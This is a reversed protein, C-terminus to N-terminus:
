LDVDTRGKNSEYEKTGRNDIENDKRSSVEVLSNKNKEREHIIRNIEVEM